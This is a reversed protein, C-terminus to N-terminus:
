YGIAIRVHNSSEGGAVLYLDALGADLLAPIRIEVLYMGVYGPALTAKTVEAPSGNLYARVEVAVVPVNTLPAPTGTPWEPSVKGLGTALLQVLARAETPQAGDLMMGTDPDLLLPAGDKDVFVAPAVAKVTLNMTLSSNLQLAVDAPDTGFPVQIQSGEASQALVPFQRGNAVATQVAMGLASVLGGPAAARLSLDAANVLRAAGNQHPARAVYVGYGDLAVTLQRGAADLRVDEAAANPLRGSVSSWPSATGLVNLDMRTLFVGKDTAVYVAGGARDAAIGHAPADGLAGTMDDWTLGGNVTRFLHAGRADAAVFAIRPLEADVAFREVPGASQVTSVTWHARADASTWIRGDATGAYWFDGAGGVATVRAGLKLSLAARLANDPGQDERATWRARGQLAATGMKEVAIGNGPLLARVPLNPLGDNLGSWSLGGDRSAWVGSDNGVVVFLPDRPSIAVDHQGEGIISRGNFATLNIWTRGDDESAYVHGGFAYLRGGGGERLNVQREPLKAPARQLPMEWRASDAPASNWSEFDTTVFALSRDTRAFLQTGEESFWVQRVPGGAAGALGTDVASTGLKRWAVNTQAEAPQAFITVAGAVLVAWRVPNAWRFPNSHCVLTDM